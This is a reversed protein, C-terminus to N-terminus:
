IAKLKKGIKKKLYDLFEESNEYDMQRIFDTVQNTISRVANIEEHTRGCARCREGGETCATRSVCPKFQHAM